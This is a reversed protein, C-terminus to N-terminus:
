IRIGQSDACYKYYQNAIVMMLMMFPLFSLDIANMAMLMYIYEYDAKRLLVIVILLFLSLVLIGDACLLQVYCNSVGLGLDNFDKGRGFLLQTPTASSIQELGYTLRTQRTSISTGGIADGKTILDTADYM